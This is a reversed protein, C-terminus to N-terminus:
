KWIILLLQPFCLKPSCILRANLRGQDNEAPAIWRASNVPTIQKMQGSRAGSFIFVAETECLPSCCSAGELLGSGPLPLASSWFGDAQFDGPEQCTGGQHASWNQFSVSNTEERLLEVSIRHGKQSKFHKCSVHYCLLGLSAPSLWVVPRNLETRLRVGALLLHRSFRAIPFAARFPVEGLPEWSKALQLQVRKQTQWLWWAKWKM